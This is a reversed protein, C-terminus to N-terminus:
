VSLAERRRQHVARSAGASVGASHKLRGDGGRGERGPVAKVTYGAPIKFLSPDPEKTSVNSLSFTSQGFFPDNRIAKVVIELDASYWSEATSVIPQTNGMTNAPITRVVKKGQASVGSSADVPLESESVQEGKPPQHPVGDPGAGASGGHPGPAHNPSFPRQMAWKRSEDLSYAYGAVPDTIFIMVHTGMDGFPGGSVTVREYTRGQSDRAVQGTSTRQVTDGNTLRHVVQNTLTASYPANTVLKGHDMEMPGPGFGHMHGPGGEGPPPGQAWGAAAFVLWGAVAWMAYRKM